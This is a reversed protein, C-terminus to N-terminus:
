PTPTPVAEVFSLDYVQDVALPEDYQLVGGVERYYNQAVDLFQTPITLTPDFYSREFSLLKDAPTDTAQAFKALVDPDALHDGQLHDRVTRALARTLAAGVEPQDELLNPGFLYQASPELPFAGPVFECCSDDLLLQHFPSSANAVGVAGSRLAQVADSSTMDQMRVDSPSVTGGHQSLYDFLNANILSDRGGLTGIVQDRVDDPEFTGNDGLIEKNVWIGQRTDETRGGSPFVTRIDAGNAVLNLMGASFSTGAIDLDGKQLLLLMEQGPMVELNIDINEKALEGLPGALLLAGYSGIKNSVAANITVKDALPHPALPDGAVPAPARGETGHAM